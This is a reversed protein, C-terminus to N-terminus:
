GPRQDIPRISTLLLPGTVSTPPPFNRNSTYSRDPWANSGASTASNRRPRAPLPRDLRLRSVLGPQNIRDGQQSHHHSRNLRRCGNRVHKREQPGPALVLSGVTSAPQSHPDATHLQRGLGTWFQVLQHRMQHACGHSRGCASKRQNHGGVGIGIRCQALEARGRDIGLCQGAHQGILTDTPVMDLNQMVAILPRDAALHRSEQGIAVGIVQQHNM